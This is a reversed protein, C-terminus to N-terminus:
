ALTIGYYKAMSKDIKERTGDPPTTRIIILESIGGYWSRTGSAINGIYLAGTGTSTGDKFVDIKLSDYPLADFSAITSGNLFHNTASAGTLVTWLPSVGVTSVRIDTCIRSSVVISTRMFDVSHVYIHNISTATTLRINTQTPTYWEISAKNNKEYLVGSSTIKPQNAAIAETANNTGSQDYWTTVFGDGGIGSVTKNYTKLSGVEVQAGWIIFTDTNNGAFSPNRAATPSNIFTASIRGGTASACVATLAIRFWGNALAQISGTGVIENTVTGTTLNFNACAGGFDSVGTAIQVTDITGAKVYFSMVYTLGVTPAVTFDKYASHVGTASNIKITDATTTGDPSVQTDTASASSNSFSWSEFAESPFILNEGGVFSLVSAKDFDNGVFGIDLNDGNSARRVNVAKTASKSLKRLSYAGLYSVGKLTELLLPKATSSPTFFFHM